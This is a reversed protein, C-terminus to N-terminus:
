PQREVPLRRWRSWWPPSPPRTALGVEVAWAVVQRAGPNVLVTDGLRVTPVTEDGGTARRVEAAAAPDSWIDIETAAIGARRLAKRLSRSYPCGPRWYVVLEPGGDSQDPRTEAADPDM